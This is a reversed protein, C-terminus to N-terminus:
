ESSIEDKKSSLDIGTKKQYDEFLYESDIGYVGFSKDGTMIKSLKMYSQRNLKWWDKHDEWHLSRKPHERDYNSYMFKVVPSILKIGRTYARLAMSPEEGIFYLDKDYPVENLIYSKCFFCGGSLFYHEDGFVTDVVDPWDNKAQIMKSPEDWHIDIKKLSPYDILRVLGNEIVFPDPYNTLIIREGWYKKATFFNQIILEDWFEKFRSHSDIQLFFNTNINESSVSRAYCAGRAQDWNVKTYRIQDKPMFSLDPHEDHEAQSYVSIFLCEKYKAKDYCDRVTNILDPDRYSAISIFISKNLEDM